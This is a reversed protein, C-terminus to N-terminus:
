DAPTIQNGRRDGRGHRSFRSRRRSMEFASAPAPTAAPATTVSAHRLQLGPTFPFSWASRHFPLRSLEETAVTTLDLELCNLIDAVDRALSSVRMTLRPQKDPSIEKGRGARFEHGGACHASGIAQAKQTGSGPGMIGGIMVESAQVLNGFRPSNTWYPFRSGGGFIGRVQTM